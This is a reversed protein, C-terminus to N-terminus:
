AFCPEAVPLVSHPQHGDPAETYFTLIDGCGTIRCVPDRSKLIGSLTVCVRWPSLSSVCVPLNPSTPLRRM